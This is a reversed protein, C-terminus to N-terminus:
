TVLFGLRRGPGSPGLRPTGDIDVTWASGRMLPLFLPMGLGFIPSGQLRRHSADQSRIGLDGSGHGLLRVARSEFDVETIKGVSLAPDVGRELVGSRVQIGNAASPPPTSFVVASRRRAGIRPRSGDAGRQTVNTIIRPATTLVVRDSTGLPM